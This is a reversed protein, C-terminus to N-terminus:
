VLMHRECTTQSSGQGALANTKETGFVGVNSWQLSRNIELKTHPARCNSCSQHSKVNRILSNQLRSALLLGSDHCTHLYVGPSRHSLTCVEANWGTAALNQIRAMRALAGGAAMCSPLPLTHSPVFSLTINEKSNLVSQPLLFHLLLEVFLGLFSPLKCRACCSDSLIVSSVAPLSSRLCVDPPTKTANSLLRPATTPTSSPVIPGIGLLSPLIAWARAFTKETYKQCESPQVGLFSGRIFAARFFALVSVRPQYRTICVHTWFIKFLAEPKLPLLHM